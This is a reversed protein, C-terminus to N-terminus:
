ALNPGEDLEAPSWRGEVGVSRPHELARLAAVGLARPRIVLVADPRFRGVRDQLALPNPARRLRVVEASRYTAKGATATVVLVDHGAGVLADCVERATDAPDDTAPVFSDTVLM